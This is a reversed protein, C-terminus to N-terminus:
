DGKRTITYEPRNFPASSAPLKRPAVERGVSTAWEAFRAHFDAEVRNRLAESDSEGDVEVIPMMEFSWRGKEHTDLPTGKKLTPPDVGIFVPLIPVGTRVAVEFAGRKFRHLKNSLSRTGEPFIILPHGAEVHDVMRVLAGTFPEDGPEANSVYHVSRLIPGFFLNNRWASKVVSTTGPLWHLLFLV